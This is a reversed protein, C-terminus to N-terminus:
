QWDTSFYSDYTDVDPAVAEFVIVKKFIVADKLYKELEPSMDTLTVGFGDYRYKSAARKVSGGKTKTGEVYFILNM